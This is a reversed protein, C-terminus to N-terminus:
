GCALSFLPPTADIRTPDARTPRMSTHCSSPCPQSFSKSTNGSVKPCHRGHPSTRLYFGHSGPQYDYKIQQDGWKMGWHDEQWARMDSYGTEEFAARNAAEQESTHPHSATGELIPPMPRLSVLKHLTAYLTIAEVFQAVDDPDGTVELRNTTWKPMHQGVRSAKSARM